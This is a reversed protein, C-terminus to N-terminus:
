LSPERLAQVELQMAAALARREVGLAPVPPGFSLRALVGPSSLLRWVSPVLVDDDIYAAVRSPASRDVQGNVINWYNLGVPQVQAQASIAAQLLNAHFPLVAHGPSTTGEPFFAIVDGAKLAAAVDHVVRMADRKREREIYLTGAGTVLKGVVPWAKVESKSVFRAPRAALMVM